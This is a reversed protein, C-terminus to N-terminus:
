RINQIYQIAKFARQSAIFFAKPNSKIVRKWGDIYSVSNDFNIHSDINCLKALYNAGIEATLEEIAYDPSGQYHRKTVTTRNLRTQHGTSHILEHFLVSYYDYHSEFQSQNVMYITDNSPRYYCESGNKNIIAPKNIMSEILSDSSVCPRITKDEDITETKIGEVQDLNFIRYLKTVWYEKEIEPNDDKTVKTHFIIPTSESGKKVTGGSEKIQNFILWYSSRFETCSTLLENIGHYIHKSQFNQNSIGNKWPQQWPIINNDLAKLLKNNITTIIKKNM